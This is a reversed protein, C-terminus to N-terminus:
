LKHIKKTGSYMEFKLLKCELQGNYLTIKRTPRLGISKIAEVHSSIIWANMGTFDKKLKNGIEKYFGTIDEFELREGYPPNLVLTGVQKEPRLDFFDMNTTKIVDDLKATKMNERAKDLVPKSIDNAWINLPTDKIRNICGEHITDFLKEDYNRWKMFGFEKRFVGAPINSAWMAAEIAMTGSGCMGDILPLHPQWGSLMIIGAALNEKMPAKDIDVRYKRKFLADGSSDLSVAVEDGYIHIYIRLTPNDLDVNPRAGTKERFRDCIADKAKQSVFLTHNFRDSNVTSDIALSDQTGIYKEWHFDKIGDYLQQENRAKFGYLPMLIKLATRLCLNAKYMFGLDGTFAVGRTFQKIDRAGLKLLEDVLTEELGFFTTAKMEFDGPPFAHLM